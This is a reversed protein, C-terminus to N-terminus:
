KTADRSGRSARANLESDKFVPRVGKEFIVSIALLKEAMNGSSGQHYGHLSLVQQELISLALHTTVDGDFDELM